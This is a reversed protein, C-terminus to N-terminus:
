QITRGARRWTKAFFPELPSYIFGKDPTTQDLKGANAPAAWDTASLRGDANM